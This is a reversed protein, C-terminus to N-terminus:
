FFHARQQLRKDVLQIHVNRCQHALSRKQILNLTPSPSFPPIQNALLLWWGTFLIADIKKKIEHEGLRVWNAGVGVSCDTTCSLSHVSRTKLKDCRELSKCTDQLNELAIAITANFRHWDHRVSTVVWGAPTTVFVSANTFAVLEESHVFFILLSLLIDSWLFPFALSIMFKTRKNRDVGCTKCWWEKQQSVRCRCLCLVSEDNVFQLITHSLHLLGCGHLVSLCWLNSLHHVSLGQTRAFTDFCNANRIFALSGVWSIVNTLKSFLQTWSFVSACAWIQVHLQLMSKNVDM